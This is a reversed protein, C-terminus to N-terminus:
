ESKLLQKAKATTAYGRYGTGEGVVEILGLELWRALDGQPPEGRDLHAGWLPQHADRLYRLALRERASLEM